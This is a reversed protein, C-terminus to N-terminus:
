VISGTRRAPFWAALACIVPAAALGILGNLLALHLSRWVAGLMANM